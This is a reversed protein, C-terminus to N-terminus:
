CYLQSAQHGVAGRLRVREGFVVASPIHDNLCAVDVNRVAYPSITLVSGRHQCSFHLVRTCVGRGPFSTVSTSNPGNDIKTGATSLRSRTKGSASRHRWAWSSPRALPQFSLAHKSSRCPM